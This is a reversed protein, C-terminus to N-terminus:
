FLCLNINRVLLNECESSLLSLLRAAINHIFQFQFDNLPYLMVSRLWESTRKMLLSSGFERTSALFFYIGFGIKYVHGLQRRRLGKDEGDVLLRMLPRGTIDMPLGVLM